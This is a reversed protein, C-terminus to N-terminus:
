HTSRANSEGEFNILAMYPTVYYGNDAQLVLGDSIFFGILSTARKQSIGFKIIDQKTFTKVTKLYNAMKNVLFPTDDIIM